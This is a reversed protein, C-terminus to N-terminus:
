RDARSRPLIPPRGTRAAAHRKGRCDPVHARARLDRDIIELHNPVLPELVELQDLPCCQAAGTRALATRAHWVQPREDRGLGALGSRWEGPPRRRPLQGDALGRCVHMEVREPARRQVVLVDGESRAHISEAAPPTRPVVAVVEVLVPGNALTDREAIHRREALHDHRTGVDDFSQLPDVRRRDVVDAGAATAVHQQEVLAAM